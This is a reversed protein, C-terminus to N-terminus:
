RSCILCKQKKEIQISKFNGSYGDFLTLKNVSTEGVKTIWKITDLSQLNGIIGTIPSLIGAQACNSVPNTTVDNSFLCGFCASKEFGEVGAMFTAMQGDFRVAGGFIHPVGVKFSAKAAVLRTNFQDTCDVLLDCGTLIETLLDENITQQKIKVLVDSNINEVFRQAQETKPQGVDQQRYIFQRNLNSLDITDNDCIILQGIGAAALNAIVASGLGGAGFVVVKSSLLFQQGDEDIEPMVLQRAYRYLQKETITMNKRRRVQQALARQVERPKM